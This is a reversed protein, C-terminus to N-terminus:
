SPNLGAVKFGMRQRRLMEQHRKCAPNIYRPKRALDEIMRMRWPDKWDRADRKRRRRLYHYLVSDIFHETNVIGLARTAHAWRDDEGRGGEMPAALALERRMPNLHSIDRELISEGTPKWHGGSKWERFQLSHVALPGLTQNPNYVQVKFGIYDVGDLLPAISSVYDRSVVDDDDIFCVYDAYSTRRMRERNHGLTYEHHFMNVRISVDKAAAVQPELISLLQKLFHSRAPQTLILIEWTM